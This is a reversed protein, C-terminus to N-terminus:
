QGLGSLVLVLLTFVRTLLLAVPERLFLKFQVVSLKLFSHM